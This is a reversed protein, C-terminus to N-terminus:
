NHPIKGVTIRPGTRGSRRNPYMEVMKTLSAAFNEAQEAESRHFASENNCDAITEGAWKHLSELTDFKAAVDGDDVIHYMGDPTRSPHRVIFVRPARPVGTYVM